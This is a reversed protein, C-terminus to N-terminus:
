GSQWPYSETASSARRRARRAGVLEEVEEDPAVQHALPALLRLHTM